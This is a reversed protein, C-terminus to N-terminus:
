APWSFANRTTSPASNTVVVSPVPSTCLAPAKPSASLITVSRSPMSGTIGTPLSPAKVWGISSYAPISTKSALRGIMSSRLRTVRPSGEPLTVSPM